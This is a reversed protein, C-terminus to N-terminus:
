RLEHWKVLTGATLAASYSAGPPVIINHAVGYNADAQNNGVIAVGGVTIIVGAGATPSTGRVNVMIARGTTNYYTTGLARSATLDQWTQGNGLGTLSALSNGGAGQITSPATAWTGATAQTSQIWGVVRYPVNTRATTSYIVTASDAAGAGGEATTSILGSEDLNTGGAINMAALEIVGTTGAAIIALVAIKGQVGNVFGLTSGSSIVLSVATIITRTIVTGSAITNHRFDLTTPNLTITLASLTCSATIPQIKSTSLDSLGAVTIDKDPWVVARTTGSSIGSIDHDIKKTGDGGDSFIPDTLEAGALSDAVNVASFTKLATTLGTDASDYIKIDYVGDGFVSVSGDSGLTTQYVGAVTPLTKDRDLWVAKDTGAGAAYFHVIAGDDWVGGDRADIRSAALFEVLAGKASM